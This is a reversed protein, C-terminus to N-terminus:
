EIWVLIVGGIWLELGLYFYNIEKNEVVVVVLAGNCFIMWKFFIAVSIVGTYFDERANRACTRFVM